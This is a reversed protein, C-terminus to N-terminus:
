VAAEQSDRYARVAVAGSIRARYSGPALVDSWPETVAAGVLARLAAEDPAGDPLPVRLPVAQAGGLTVATGGPDRCWAATVIPWSGASHKVKCYGFERPAVAIVAAEVFEGPGLATRYADRHFQASTVESRGDPGHVRYRAGLAALAAPMDTAPMAFCAAGVPTASNRLQQGGTIGRAVQCLHPLHERVVPSRLLDEYSAMAGLVIDPGTVTIEDLGCGRLDVLHTISQEGRTLRPLLQSGGGLVAADGHHDLLLASVEAATDPRHYRLATRIM